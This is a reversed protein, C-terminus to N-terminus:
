KAPKIQKGSYDYDVYQPYSQYSSWLLLDRIILWDFFSFTFGGSDENDQDRRNTNYYFIMLAFLVAIILLSFILMLGFSIRLLFFGIQFIKKWVIEFFHQIGHTLYANQFGMPFQYAIDGSTSVQLHGGTESAIKNLESSVKLLPLGTKTAVDASSVHRGL